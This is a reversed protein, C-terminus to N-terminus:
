KELKIKLSFRRGTERRVYGKIELVTLQSLVRAATLGTRETIDDVHTTGPDIAAIIKLQDETLGALQDRFDFPKVGNQEKQDHEHSGAPRMDCHDQIFGANETETSDTDGSLGAPRGSDNERHSTGESVSSRKEEDERKQETKLGPGETGHLLSELGPFRNVYDSLIEAGCTVLRAGEKLLTLTGAANEADANGPVAFIDRGLEAADDVFLRTGSKEPAEVVLVGDSLGAAVRNRERFFHRQSRMGPPYESILMGMHSIEKALPDRCAEHATGLVAICPRDAILAGKAAAEGVGAGLLTLVTGGHQSIEGALCQGMKIGYPSAQRTGIVSIVPVEDLPLLTGQVYLIYPPSAIQRLKEPYLNSDWDILEIGQRRCRSRIIEAETLSRDELVEAEHESIGKRGHFSGAPARFAAEASGFERIVATRAKPSINAKSLWIWYILSEM